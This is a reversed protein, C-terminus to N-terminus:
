HCPNVTHWWSNINLTSSMLIRITNSFHCTLVKISRYRCIWRWQHICKRYLNRYKPRDVALRYKGNRTWIRETRRSWDYYLKTTEGYYKQLKKRNCPHKLKLVLLSKQPLPFQKWILLKVKTVMLEQWEIHFSCKSTDNWTVYDFM